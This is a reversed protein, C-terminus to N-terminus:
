NICQNENYSNRNGGKALAHPIETRRQEIAATKQFCTRPQDRVVPSDFQNATKKIWAM